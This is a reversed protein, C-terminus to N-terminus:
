IGIKMLVISTKGFDVRYERVFDGASIIRLYQRTLVHQIMTVNFSLPLSDRADHVRFPDIQSAATLDGNHYATFAEVSWDKWEIGLDQVQFQFRRKSLQPM